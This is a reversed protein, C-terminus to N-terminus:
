APEPCDATTLFGASGTAAHDASATAGNNNTSLFSAVGSDDTASGAYDELTFSSNFRQRVRIGSLGVGATTSTNGKIDACVTPSDPLSTGPTGATAGANVRIGEAALASTLSVINDLITVNMTLGPAAVTDRGSVEIGLNAVQSVNNNNLKVTMTGTPGNGIVRIGPGTTSNNNTIANNSVTGSMTGSGAGGRNLNIPSAAGALNPTSFTGRHVDFNLNGSSNHAINVGINNDTFTGGSGATGSTGVEIDITGSDNTVVQLGNARNRLFSSNTVDATITATGSAQILLGNNGPSVTETDRFISNTVTLQSLTGSSNIIRANDEISNAVTSNTIAATGLLNTFRIGAEDAGGDDANNYVTSNDLTFNTVDAGTIGSGLNNQVLMRTLSVGRTNTLSIGDGTKSQITGGSNATGAGAVTLGGATGTTNLVVGNTGGNSSIREFTVGSGGIDTNTVNLATAAGTDITNGTGTVVLTGSTTAELGKGTTTDIDLGGGTLSLTHGDSSSMVVANAAGTNITKTPNSFVTSGGSNGSVTIGGGADNSDSIPGSLTVTGGTRGTIDATDGTGNGLTGPYTVNGSGGNLDFAIGAAGSITGQLASFTGTGLGDLNIGDGSSNTSDVDDFGLTPNSTGSVDVAPGGTARAIATTGPVSVTGATSLLLAPDTGSATTLSLDVGAGDGFTTSGTTTAM